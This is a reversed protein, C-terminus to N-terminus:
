MWQAQNKVPLAHIRIFLWIWACFLWIWACRFRVGMKAKKERM